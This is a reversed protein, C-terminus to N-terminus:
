AITALDHPHIESRISRTTLYLEVEDVVHDGIRRLENGMSGAIHPTLVANPLDFLPHDGPLPEPDTVDLVARIRGTRLEDVLSDTDILRGRATNIVTCGDSLLALQESGIMRYTEPLSPAHISVIRSRRLLEPLSVLTAGLAAAEESSISPDYLLATMDFPRLLQLVRRGIRSAGIIGVSIEYTGVPAIPRASLLDRTQTFRSASRFVGKAEQLIMALTYEAVPLANADASSSVRIGREWLAPSVIRKVSGAAHFIARLRPWQELMAEDFRPAGWGSIILEAEAASDPIRPSEGSIVPDALGVSARLRAMAAPKFLEPVLAASDMVM